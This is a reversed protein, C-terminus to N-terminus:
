GSRVYRELCVEYSLPTEEEYSYLWATGRLIRSVVRQRLIGRM